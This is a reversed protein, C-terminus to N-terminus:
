AHSLISRWAYLRPGNKWQFVKVGPPVLIIKHLIMHYKSTNPNIHRCKPNKQLSFFLFLYIWMLGLGWCPIEWIKKGAALIWGFLSGVGGPNSGRVQQLRPSWSLISRWAYLRPGIKWQFVKVGPPVLIIKHLIMHYKFTNPNSHRCKPIKKLSFFLFLYIWMLGLVWCPIEWFKKGGRGFDVWVTVRCGRSKFGPGASSPAVLEGSCWWERSHMAWYVEGLM